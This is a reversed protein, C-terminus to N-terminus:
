KLQKAVEEDVEKRTASMAEKIGIDGKFFRDLYPWMKAETIAYAGAVPLSIIQSNPVLKLVEYVESLDKNDKLVKDIWNQHVPQGSFTTVGRWWREAITGDPGLISLLWDTALQPNPAGPFVFGSDIHVWTRPPASANAQAPNAGKVKATGWVQRGIRVLSHSGLSFAFKGKQWVDMSDAHPDLRALGDDKWKKLMELLMFWEQSEFKLVGQDDFPKEIFTTFMTGFTRFMERSIGMPIVEDKALLPKMKRMMKDVEDWTAPFKDYGAMQLYDERYGVLHVNAKMPIFYQKGQFQLADYIRSTFYSEKQKGGWGVKSTKLYDDLPAVLGAKIYKFSDFFAAYGHGSWRLNKEKIQALVKTDWGQATEELTVNGLDAREQNFRVTADLMGLDAWTKDVMTIIKNNAAAPAAAATTPAAASAATPAAVAPAKTPDAPKGAAPAQPAAEGCAALLASISVAGSQQLLRRREM